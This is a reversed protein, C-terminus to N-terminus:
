SIYYYYMMDPMRKVQLHLLLKLKLAWALVVSDETMYLCCLHVALSKDLLVAFLAGVKDTSTLAGKKM